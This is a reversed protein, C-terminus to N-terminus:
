ITPSSATFRGDLGPCLRTSIAMFFSQIRTKANSCYGRVPGIFFASRPSVVIRFLSGLARRGTM